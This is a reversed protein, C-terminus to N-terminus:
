PHLSDTKCIWPLKVLSMFFTKKNGTKFAMLHENKNSCDAPFTLLIVISLHVLIPTTNVTLIIIYSFYFLFSLIKKGGVLFLLSSKLNISAIFFIQFVFLLVVKKILPLLAYQPIHILKITWKVIYSTTAAKSITFQLPTSTCHWTDKNWRMFSKIIDFQFGIINNWSKLRIFM